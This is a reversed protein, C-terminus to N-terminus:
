VKEVEEIEMGAQLVVAAAIRHRTIRNGDEERKTEIERMRERKM